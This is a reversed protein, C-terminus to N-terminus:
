GCSSGFGDCGCGFSGGCCNSSVGGRSGCEVGVEVGVEMVVVFMM